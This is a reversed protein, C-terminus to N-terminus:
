GNMAGLIEGNNADIIDYMKGENPISDKGDEFLRKRDMIREFEIDDIKINEVDIAKGHLDKIDDELLKSLNNSSFVGKSRSGAKRFDGGAIAMRELKKKSIQKEMM